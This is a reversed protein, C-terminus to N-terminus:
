GLDQVGNVVQDPNLQSASVQVPSENEKGILDDLHVPKVVNM